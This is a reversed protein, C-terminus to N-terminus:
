SQRELRQIKVIEARGKHRHRGMGLKRERKERGKESGWKRAEGQRQERWRKEEKWAGGNGPGPSALELPLHPVSPYREEGLEGREWKARWLGAGTKVMSLRLVAMKSRSRARTQRNRVRLELPM